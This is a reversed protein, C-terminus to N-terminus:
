RGEKVTVAGRLGASSSAAGVRSISPSTPPLRSRRLCFRCSGALCRNKRAPTTKPTPSLQRSAPLQWTLTAALADTTLPVAAAALATLVTRADTEIDHDCARAFFATAAKLVEITEELERCKRKLARIEAASASTM